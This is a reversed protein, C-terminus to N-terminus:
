QQWTPPRVSQCFALHERSNQPKAAFEGGPLVPPPCPRVVPLLSAFGILAGSVQRAAMVFHLVAVIFNRVVDTVRVWSAVLL